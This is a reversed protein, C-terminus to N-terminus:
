PCTEPPLIILPGTGKTTMFAYLQKGDATKQYVLSFKKGPKMTRPLAPLLLFFTLFDPQDM